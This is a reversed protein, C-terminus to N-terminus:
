EEAQLMEQLKLMTAWNRSTVGNGLTKNVAANLASAIVGDACWLYAARRGVGLADSGWDQKELTALKPRDMPDALVAVLLRSPDGAKLLLPNEAIVDAVEEASLVVVRCTVGLKEKLGTEIRAASERSTGKPATFVVNGSNLLTRPSDFGLASVLDRLDSMGVKKYGALNVARLLAVYGASTPM